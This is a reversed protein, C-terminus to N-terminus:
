IKFRIIYQTGLSSNVILSGKIQKVLINMLKLGLKFKSTDNLEFGCGFDKIKFEFFGETEELSIEMTGETKGPYAYKFTNSVAEALFLGLPMSYFSDLYVDNINVFFKMEFRDESFSQNLHSLLNQIYTKFNIRSGESEQYLFQHLLAISQIRMQIPQFLEEANLHKLRRQHMNIMSLVVQLNNKVRHNLEKLLWLAYDSKKKLLDSQHQLAINQNSILLAINKKERYKFYAFLLLSFILILFSILFAIKNAQVKVQDTSKRLEVRRQSLEFASLKSLVKSKYYNTKFKELLLEMEYIKNKYQIAKFQNGKLEFYSQLIKNNLILLAYNNTVIDTYNKISDIYLKLQPTKREKSEIQALLFWPDLKYHGSMKQLAQNAQEKALENNNLFYYYAKLYEFQGIWHYAGLDPIEKSLKNKEYFAKSLNEGEQIVIKAENLRNAGLYLGAKINLFKIYDYSGIPPAKEFLRFDQIALDFLGYDQYLQWYTSILKRKIRMERLFLAKEFQMLSRYCEELKILILNYKQVPLISKFRLLYELHKTSLLFKAQSHSITALAFRKNLKDTLSLEATDIRDIFLQWKEIPVIHYMYNKGGNFYLSDWAKLAIIYASQNSEKFISSLKIGIETNDQAFLPKKALLFGVFVLLIVFPRKKFAFM